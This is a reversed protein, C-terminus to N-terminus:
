KQPKPWRRIPLVNEGTAKNLKVRVEYLEMLLSHERGLADDLEGRLDKVKRKEKDVVQAQTKEPITQELAAADIAAILPAFIARSKKITGKKRGAELSVADKSIRTGKPVIKPRGSKLRDLAEYYDAHLGTSM